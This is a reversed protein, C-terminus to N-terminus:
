SRGYSGFWGTTFISSCGHLQHFLGALRQFLLWTPGSPVIMFVLPGTRGTHKERGFRQRTPPLHTNPRLARGHVPGLFHGRQQLTAIRLGLLDNQDTILEVRMRDSREVLGKRRLLRSAQSLPQLDVVRGLM